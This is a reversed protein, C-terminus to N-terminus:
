RVDPKNKKGKIKTFNFIFLYIYKGKKKIDM